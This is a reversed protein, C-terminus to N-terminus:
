GLAATQAFIPRLAPYLARYVGYQRQYVNVEDRHPETSSDVTVWKACAEAVSAFMGTGAAALLAAGFAPGEQAAVTVVPANFVSAQMQRWLGSRAGGGSARVQTVPIHMERLIELCDRLSFTVGELVSRLVDSRTHVASLGYLLARAQADLHPTREGMLYPLWHLGRSGPEAQAAEECLLDYADM